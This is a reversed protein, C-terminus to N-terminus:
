RILKVLSVKSRKIKAEAVADDDQWWPIIM